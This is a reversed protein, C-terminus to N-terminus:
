PTNREVDRGGEGDRLFYITDLQVTQAIRQVDDKEVEQIAEILSAVTRDTGALVNNFDFATMEYASDLIERLQSCMMKKTKELEQDSIQGDKIAELQQRIIENAKEFNAIEIGSQIALIGKHGHLRSSVYYAMSARERVHTFLKSHPYAGLIGNYVLAAPYDPDAYTVPLRLGLNLKGQTIDLREIVTKPEKRAHQVPEVQEYARPENNEYQFAEAVLSKVESMSVSGVVYIDIAAEKLWRRYDEYLSAPTIRGIEEIRGLPHLRYPEGACMEEICREAAYRIKDNILSQIRKELTNKEAEVYLKRFIGDELLPRTITDGLFRLTEELLSHPHDVYKEHIMDMRFQVVQYDGRKTVDFGFGAGYLLELHERFTKTEPFRSNGRRLVFPILATPTVHDESLRRGIHVTVAYTKFRDTPLVHLRINGVNSREIAASNM